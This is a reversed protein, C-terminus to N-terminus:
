LMSNKIQDLESELEELVYLYMELLYTRTKFYKMQVLLTSKLQTNGGIARHLDASYEELGIHRNQAAVFLEPHQRTLVSILQEKLSKEYDVTTRINSLSFTHLNTLLEKLKESQLFKIDGSHIMSNYRNMPPEFDRYYILNFEIRNKSTTLKELEALDLSESLLLDYIKIDQKWTTLKDDCYKKIDVIEMEINNLVKMREKTERNTISLQNLWFSVTIGVVIVVLDLLYRLFYRKRM